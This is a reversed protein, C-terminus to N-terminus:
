HVRRGGIPDDGQANPPKDNLFDELVQKRVPLFADTLAASLQFRLVGDAGVVPSQESIHTFGQSAPWTLGGGIDVNSNLRHCGACSLARARSVIDDATLTSGAPIAATVNTRLTSPGAFQTLYNNEAAGSSLSQGGNFVDPIKLDIGALTTAALTPVQTVLHTDFATKQADASSPNFLGGFPNTKVTVPVVNMASCSGAACTRILKFERLNWVLPAPVPLMLQNTRIQGVGTANDGYHALNVVPPLGALGKFYFTELEDARKDLDDLKSLGAWFKVIKDCGKLGQAPHPNPMTAEFIILNRNRIDSTGSRRAYVIRHEGCNGGNAPALDFRNFLGIPIYAGQNTDPNAFPNSTAEAGEQGASRPRCVYPYTNLAGTCSIGGGVAESTPNQTDWWQQFLALSTLGPVGSQAVLQDLVRQFSFRQLIPQETVVLSRSTDVTSQLAQQQSTFDQPNQGDKVPGDACGFTGVFTAAALAALKSGRSVRDSRM